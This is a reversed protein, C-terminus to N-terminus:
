DNKERAQERYERPTIGFYKRFSRNFACQSGFGCSLAASLISDRSNMLIYCVETLRHYQVYETFTVGTRERFYRSLYVPNFGLDQSLGNLSCDSSTYTKQVYDFIRLLLQNSDARIPQYEAGADFAACVSYLIGKLQWVSADTHLETLSRFWFPDLPFLNNKPAKGSYARAFAQVYNPSFIWLEHRSHKITELAHLQNPFVLVASGPTVSYVSDAITVRMEGETVTILEFSEHLHIPFRFDSGTEHHVTDTIVSYQAQYFM